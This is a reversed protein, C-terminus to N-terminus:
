LVIIIFLPLICRYVHDNFYARNILQDTFYFHLLKMSFAITPIALNRTAIPQRIYNLRTRLDSACRLLSSVVCLVTAIFWHLMCPVCLRTCANTESKRLTTKVLLMSRHHWVSRQAVHMLLSAKGSLFSLMCIFCTSTIYQLRKSPPLKDESLRSVFRSTAYTPGYIATTM